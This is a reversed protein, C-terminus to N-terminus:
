QLPLPVDEDERMRRERRKQQLSQGIKQGNKAMNGGPRKIPL